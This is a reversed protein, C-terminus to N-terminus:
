TSPNLSILYYRHQKLQLNLKILRIRMDGTVMDEMVMGEMVMAM